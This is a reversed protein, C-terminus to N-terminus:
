RALPIFWEWVFFDQHHMDCISPYIRIKKFHIKVKVLKANVGLTRCQRLINLRVSNKQKKGSHPVLHVRKITWQAWFGHIMIFHFFDANLNPSFFWFQEYCPSLIAIKHRSLYWIDWWPCKSIATSVAPASPWASAGDGSSKSPNLQVMGIEGKHFHKGKSTFQLGGTCNIAAKNEM